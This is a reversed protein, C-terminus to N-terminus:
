LAAIVSATWNNYLDFLSTGAASVAGIITVVILAALLGYELATVGGEDALGQIFDPTSAKM